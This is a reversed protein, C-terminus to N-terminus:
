LSAQNRKLEDIIKRVDSSNRSKFAKIISILSWMGSFTSGLIFLAQWTEAPLTLFESFDAAILSSLLALFIGVPTKWDNKAKLNNQHKILCLELKDETVVVIDQSVNTHVVSSEQVIQHINIGDQTSTTSVQSM